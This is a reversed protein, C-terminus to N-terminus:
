MPAALHPQLPTGVEFDAMFALWRAELGDWVQALPVGCHPRKKSGPRQADARVRATVERYWLKVADVEQQTIAPLGPCAGPFFVFPLLARLDLICMFLTNAGNNRAQRFSLFRAVMTTDRLLEFSPERGEHKKCYGWFEQAADWKIELTEPAMPGKLGSGVPPHFFFQQCADLQTDLQSGEQYYQPFEAWLGYGERVERPNLSCEEIQAFGGQVSAHAVVGNRSNAHIDLMSKITGDLRNFRLNLQDLCAVLEEIPVMCEWALVAWAERHSNKPPAPPPATPEEQAPQCTHLCKQDGVGVGRGWGGEGM